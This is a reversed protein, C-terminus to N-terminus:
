SRGSDGAMRHAKHDMEADSGDWDIPAHIRMRSIESKAIERAYYNMVKRRRYYTSRSIIKWGLAVIYAEVIGEAWGIAALHGNLAPRIYYIRKKVIIEELPARHAWGKLKAARQNM